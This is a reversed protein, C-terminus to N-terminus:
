GERAVSGKWFVALDVLLGLVEPVDTCFRGITSFPDHILRYHTVTTVQALLNGTSLAPFYQLRTTKHQGKAHNKNHYKFCMYGQMYDKGISATGVSVQSSM